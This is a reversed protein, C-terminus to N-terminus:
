VIASSVDESPEALPVVVKPLNEKLQLLVVIVDPVRWPDPVQEHLQTVEFKEEAL